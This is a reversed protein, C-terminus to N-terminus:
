ETEELKVILLERFAVADSEDFDGDNLNDEVVAMAYDYVMDVASLVVENNEKNM